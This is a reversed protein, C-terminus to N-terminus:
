ARRHPRGTTESTYNISLLGWEDRYLLPMLFLVACLLREYEDEPGGCVVLRTDTGSEDLLGRALGAFRRHALLVKSEAHRVIYGLETASLRINSANLVAGSIPVGFHAELSLTTNPALLSVRDGPEVGLAVLPVRHGNM